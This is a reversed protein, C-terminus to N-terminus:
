LVRATVLQLASAVVEIRCPTETIHEGDAYVPLPTETDIKIANTAFLSLSRINVHKGSLIKPFHYALQTRSFMKSGAFTIDLLGDTVSAQPAIKLGGGFTPTNSISVLWGPEIHTREVSTITMMQPQYNALAMLGGLFYGGSSKMWDPMNDTRRAAEADLGINACCSFYRPQALTASSIAGLDVGQVNAAGALFQHWTDLALDLTPVGATRALDNGSGAPVTLVPIGTRALKGLNRNVTGDGGFILVVDPRHEELERSVEEATASTMVKISTKPSNFRSVQEQSARPGVLALARM